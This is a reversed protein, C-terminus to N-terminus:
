ASRLRRDESQRAVLALLYCAILGVAASALFTAGILANQGYIQAATSLAPVSTSLCIPTVCYAIIAAMCGQMAKGLLYGRPDRPRAVLMAQAFVCFGGFTTFLALMGALVEVPLALQAAHRCGSTLEVLGILVTALIPFRGRLLVALLTNVPVYFFLICGGINLMAQMGAAIDSLIDGQELPPCAVSLHSTRQLNGGHLIFCLLVASGYHAIALPWFLARNGCMGVAVVGLLFMPSCLNCCAAGEEYDLMRCLRAGTPYGAVAGFLFCAPLPTHLKECLWGFLGARNMLSTLVYFPFLAPLVRNWWLSLADSASKLAERSCGLLLICLAVLLPPLLRATAGRINKQLSVHGSM